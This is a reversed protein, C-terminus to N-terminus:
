SPCRRPAPAPAYQTAEILFGHGDEVNPSSTSSARRHPAGGPASTRPTADGFVATCPHLRLHKGVAPGGIGSRLLLAPSELAGCAVVVRPRAYRSAPAAATEPDAYVGEVGTARGGEALVRQAFCRPWVEAGSPRPTRWTPRRRHLAQRRYPRRLRHLRRQGALLAASRHQTHDDQVVLRAGRRGAEDVGPHREPRSCEDNVSIREWVADLHRDFDSGDVGELGHERAWQERVWPKTRLCNTWNITTGGGYTAGAYLAVNMDATPNPGGRWYM